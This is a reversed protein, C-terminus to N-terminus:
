NTVHELGNFSHSLFDNIDNLFQSFLIPSLNEGQRVGVGSIFFESNCGDFKICSKTQAYMNRILTFIKGDISSRLLKHWLAARDVSDFAKKYDIFACFLKKKKFLFLDVLCKLNFLHDNTGYTKRFGAQEEGLIGYSELFDNIRTNLITTFLKGMCSLITIGRYNDPNERSGKKKFIPVIFGKTWVEPVHCTNLVINFLRVYIQMFVTESAKIFENRIADDACAKNNKLGKIAQKIELESIERNLETNYQTIQEVPIDPYDSEQEQNLNKFHDYFTDVTIDNLVKKAEGSRNIISWYAKPNTTQLDHLKKVISDQYSKFQKSISKKYARSARVMNLKSEATKQRRNYNKSRHYEKRLMKCENNFWPKKQLAMLMAAILLTLLMAPIRLQKLCYLDISEAFATHSDNKWIIKKRVKASLNNEMSRRHGVNNESFGDVHLVLPCHVDSLISDYDLVQFDIISQTLNSSAIFYDVVSAEKCTLHGVDKDIGYRGNLIHIGFTKCFEILRYGYNNVKTDCSVRKPISISNQDNSQDLM